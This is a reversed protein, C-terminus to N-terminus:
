YKICSRGRKKKSLDKSDKVGLEILDTQSVSAFSCVVLPGIVSGRGAEDVGIKM